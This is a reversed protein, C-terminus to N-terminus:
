FELKSGMVSAFYGKLVFETRGGDSVDFRIIESHVVFDRTEKNLRRSFNYINRPSEAEGYMVFDLRGESPIIEMKNIKVSKSITNSLRVLFLYIGWSQAKSLRWLALAQELNEVEKRIDRVVIEKQMVNIKRELESMQEQYRVVSFRLALFLIFSILTFFILVKIIRRGYYTRFFIQKIDEFEKKLGM